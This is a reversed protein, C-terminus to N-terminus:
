HAITIAWVRKAGACKLVRAAEEMTTGTTKVDDVLVITKGKLVLPDSVTYTGALNQLRQDRRLEMQPITKKIKQLVDGRVESGLRKGLIRAILLSQNFGRMRERSKHLPIPVFLADKPLVVAMTALHSLIMDAFLHAIDRSRRYKLSHVLERMAHQQYSFPSLFAYISSRARCRTCTRGPPLTDAAPVFAHCVFCQPPIRVLMCACAACLFTGMAGCGCCQPPFLLDLMWSKCRVLIKQM